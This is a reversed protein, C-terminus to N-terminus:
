LLRLGVQSQLSHVSDTFAWTLVPKRQDRAHLLEHSPLAGRDSGCAQNDAGRNHRGDDTATHRPRRDRSSSVRTTAWGVDLKGLYGAQESDLLLCDKIMAIDGRHKLSM